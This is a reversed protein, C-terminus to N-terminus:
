AEEEVILYLVMRYDGQKFTWLSKRIIEEYTSSVVKLASQEIKNNRLRDSSFYFFNLLTMMMSRFFFVNPRLASFSPLYSAPRFFVFRVRTTWRPRWLTTRERARPTESPQDTVRQCTFRPLWLNNGRRGRAAIANRADKNPSRDFSAVIAYHFSTDHGPTKRSSDRSKM